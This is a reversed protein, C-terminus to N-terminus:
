ERSDDRVTQRSSNTESAEYRKRLEQIHRAPYVGSPCARSCVLARRCWREGKAGYAFAKLSDPSDPDKVLQRHAAALAAPGAFDKNERAVPCASVCSGCEICDEFREWREQWHTIKCSWQAPLKKFFLEMDVALDGIIPFGKLPALTVLRTQLEWVNTRCALRENGNIIMACTGCSAHHCSHRYMLSPDQAIRIHELCDLVHMSRSVALTFDEKLMDPQSSAPKHRYIRFIISRNEMAQIATTPIENRKAV